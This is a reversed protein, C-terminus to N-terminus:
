CGLDGEGEGALIAQALDKGFERFAAKEGYLEVQREVSISAGAAQKHGGGGYKKAIGAVEYPVEARFSIRWAFNPQERLLVAYHVGVTALLENVLGEFDDETAGFKERQENSVAMYALEGEALVEFNSLVHAKLRQGALSQRNFLELNVQELKAGLRRLKALLEYLEPTVNAYRLGGTDSYVGMMLATALREDILEHHALASEDAFELLLSAMLQAASAATSDILQNALIPEPCLHHDVIYLAEANWLEARDGLRKPEHCDVVFSAAEGAEWPLKDEGYVLYNNTRAFALLNSPLPENLVIVAEKGQALLLAEAAVASALADGDIRMHPFIYFQQRLEAALSKLFDSRVLKDRSNRM